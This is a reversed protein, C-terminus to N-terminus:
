APATRLPAGVEHLFSLIERYSRYISTEHYPVGLEACFDRVIKHARRINCRPMTPFLHHEIQYNISGYLLDTIPNSRVNRSTLLQAGLVDQEKGAENQPKGKRNPAFVSAM